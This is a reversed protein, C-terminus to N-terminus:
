QDANSPLSIVDETMVQSVTRPPDVDVVQLPRAHARPDVGVRGRLLDSGSVIGELHADDAVVPLARVGQDLLLLSAETIPMSPRATVVQRSMMEHGRM